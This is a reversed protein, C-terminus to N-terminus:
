GSKSYELPEELDGNFLNLIRNDQKFPCLSLAPPQSSGNASLLPLLGTEGGARRYGQYALSSPCRLTAQWPDFNLRGMWSKNPPPSDPNTRHHKALTSRNSDLHKKTKSPQGKGPVQVLSFLIKNSLFERKETGTVCLGNKTQRVWIGLIRHLIDEM